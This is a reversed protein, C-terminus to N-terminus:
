ITLDPFRIDGSEASVDFFGVAHKKALSAVRDLAADAESWAFASYIVSKGICYDTVNSSDDDDSSHPGNMAPFDKIMDLFWAKLEPSSVVPDEYSHDESWEAQKEFWAMFDPRSRPASEPAFVMLDYSM